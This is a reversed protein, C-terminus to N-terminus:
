IVHHTGEQTTQKKINDLVLLPHRDAQNCAALLAKIITETTYHDKLHKILENHNM